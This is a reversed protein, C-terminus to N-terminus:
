VLALLQDAGPVGDVVDGVDIVRKILHVVGDVFEILNIFLRCLHGWGGRALYRLCRSTATLTGICDTVLGLLEVLLEALELGLEFVHFIHKVILM